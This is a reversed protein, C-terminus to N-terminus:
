SVTTTGAELDFNKEKRKFYTEKDVFFFSETHILQTDYNRMGLGDHMPHNHKFIKVDDGMYKYKGLIKAVDMAENDSWLSIYDPHYIYGFREYYKRGMISMTMLQAGYKHGDNFHLVGDLDPFTDQYADMIIKDFGKKIFLMDDSFNVLIDWDGALHMDRNIADIKNKSKGWVSIVGHKRYRAFWNKIKETTMSADDDDLSALITIINETQMEFINKLCAFFKVPRSRSAFKILIKM